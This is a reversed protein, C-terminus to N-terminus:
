YCQLIMWARDFAKNELDQKRIWYYLNGADGWMMGTKDEESGIQLLLVWDKVGQELVKAKPDNYGSSDGCYLGNTVLQCELEMANQIVYPYGFMQNDSPMQLYSYSNIDKNELYQSVSEDEPGPVSLVENFTVKNPIFIDELDSPISEQQLKSIDESYIVKFRDKDKPSFGWTEQDACYFFSLLGNKPLLEASAYLSVESLNIQAVFSMSKGMETKPWEAHVPLDPTGGIRSQGVSQQENDIPLTNLELKLKVHPQIKPFLSELRALQFANELEEMTKAMTPLSEKPMAPTQTTSKLPMLRLIRKLFNM